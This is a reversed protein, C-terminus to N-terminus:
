AGRRAELVRFGQESAIRYTPWGQETLWRQLSDSGLNRGVVLYARGDPTLRGLWHVLLDHLASKGIRIPPNSWIADFRVDDPVADPAVALVPVGLQEANSRTLEVARENVDTAWVTSDESTIAIACAIPGWGCGLDLVTSGPEPPKTHRLLVDTAKDLGEGAFVGSSTALELRHGWASIRIRRRRDEASPR